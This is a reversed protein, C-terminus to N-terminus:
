NSCLKCSLSTGMRINEAPSASIISSTLLEITNTITTNEQLYLKSKDNSARYNWGEKKHRNENQNM